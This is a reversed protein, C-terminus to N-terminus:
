SSSVSSQLYAILADVSAIKPYDSEPIAISLETSLRTVINLFDMSDIDFQERLDGSRNVDAPDIDPNGEGAQLNLEVIAKDIIDMISSLGQDQLEARAGSALSLLALLMFLLKLFKM